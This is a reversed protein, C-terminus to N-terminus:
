VALSPIEVMGDGECLWLWQGSWLACGSDGVPVHFCLTHKRHGPQRGMLLNDSRQAAHLVAAHIIVATYTDYGRLHIHTMVAHSLSASAASTSGKRPRTRSAAVRCASCTRGMNSSCRECWRKQVRLGGEGTNM